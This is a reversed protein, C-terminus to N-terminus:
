WKAINIPSGDPSQLHLHALHFIGLLNSVDCVHGPSERKANQM